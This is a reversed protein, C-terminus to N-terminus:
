TDRRRLRNRIDPWLEALVRNRERRDGRALRLAFASGGRASSGGPAAPRAPDRVAAMAAGRGVRAAGSESGALQFEAGAEAELAALGGELEPGLGRPTVYLCVVPKENGLGFTVHYDPGGGGGERLAPLTMVWQHIHPPLQVGNADARRVKEPGGEM